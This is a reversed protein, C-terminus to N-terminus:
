PSLGRVKAHAIAFRASPLWGCADSISLSLAPSIKAHAGHWAFYAEGRRDSLDLDGQNRFDSAKITRRSITSSGNSM